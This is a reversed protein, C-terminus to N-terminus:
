NWERKDYDVDVVCWFFMCHIKLLVNILFSSSFEYLHFFINTLSFKHPVMTTGLRNNNLLLYCEFAHQRYTQKNKHIPVSEIPMYVHTFPWEINMPFIEIVVVYVYVYVYM